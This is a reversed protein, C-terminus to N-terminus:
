TEALQGAETATMTRKEHTMTMELKMWGDHRSISWSPLLIGVFPGDGLSKGELTVRDMVGGCGVVDVGVGFM